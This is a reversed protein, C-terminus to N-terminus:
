KNRKESGFRTTTTDTQHQAPLDGLRVAARQRQFIAFIDAATLSREPQGQIRVGGYLSRTLEALPERTDIESHQHSQEKDSESNKTQETLFAPRTVVSSESQHQDRDAYDHERKPNFKWM